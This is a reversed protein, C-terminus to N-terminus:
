TRNIENKIDLKYESLSECDKWGSINNFEFLKEFGFKDILYVWGEKNIVAELIQCYDFLQIVQKSNRLDSEFYEMGHPEPYIIYALYESKM